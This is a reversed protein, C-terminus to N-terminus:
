LRMKSNNFKRPSLRVSSAKQKGLASNKEFSSPDIIDDTAVM